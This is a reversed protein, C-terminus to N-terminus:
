QATDTPAVIIPTVTGKKPFIRLVLKRVIGFLMYAASIGSTVAFVISGVQSTLANYGDPTIPIHRISAVLLVGSAISAMFGTVTASIRTPDISSAIIPHLNDQSTNQM